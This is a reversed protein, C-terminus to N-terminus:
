ESSKWYAMQPGKVGPRASFLHGSLPYKKLETENMGAKATTIYLVDRLPGGFACSTVNLAPVPITGLLHGDKGSWHSVCAGGWMGIWLDDNEDLCMGDPWGMNEPVRVLVKSKGLHGTAVNFAFEMVTRTPTDIYFMRQGNRTWAIGNSISVSDLVKRVSKGEMCFLHAKRPSQDLNMSGVWFRGAPDCKGDNLRQSELLQEPKALLELKQDPIRFRFIGSQLGVVLEEKESAPVLTGIRQGCDFQGKVSTAPDFWHIRGNEIDIFWLRQRSEDWFAGEGLQCGLEWETKVPPKTTHGMGLFLLGLLLGKLNTQMFKLSRQTIAKSLGFRM